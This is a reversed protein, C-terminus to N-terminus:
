SEYYLSDAEFSWATQLTSHGLYTACFISAKDKLSECILSCLFYLSKLDGFLASLPLYMSWLRVLMMWPTVSLM